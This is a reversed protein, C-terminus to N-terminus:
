GVGICVALLCLSKMSVIMSILACLRGVLLFIECQFIATLEYVLSVFYM